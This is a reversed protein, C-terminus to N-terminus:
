ARGDPAVQGANTIPMIGPLVPKDVGLTPWSTSWASTTSPRSSSSPSPSTPGACSPPSSAATPRGTPSRPHVEPHAAVGIASAGGPRHRRAPRLRVPLRQARADAADAPPDGGLALINEIGAARYDDLIEAIEARAHGQCTLHAMPTIATEKACGTSSRAPASAPAAAPATPSRCSARHWRSSSPSRAVSRSSPPTPRRRSSSSRTRGARPSSIPWGPWVCGGLSGTGPMGILTTM